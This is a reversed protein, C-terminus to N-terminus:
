LVDQVAEDVHSDHIDMGLINPPRFLNAAPRKAWCERIWVQMLDPTMSGGKSVAVCIDTRNRVEQPM